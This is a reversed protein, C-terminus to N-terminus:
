APVKGGFNVDVKIEPKDLKAGTERRVFSVWYPYFPECSTIVFRPIRGKYNRPIPIRFKAATGVLDDPVSCIVAGYNVGDFWPEVYLDDGCV